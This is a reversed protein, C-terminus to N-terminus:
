RTPSLLNWPGGGLPARAEAEREFESISIQRVERGFRTVVTTHSAVASRGLFSQLPEAHFRSDTVYLITQAREWIRPQSWFDYDDLETSDCGVHAAGALTADAQACVAWHPGVVVPTQGTRQRVAEVAGELLERGPGWSYLDNSTDATPEYSGLLQGTKVPLSTRLWCWGLVAVALGLGLCSTQLSSRLVPARAAHVSLTLYAPALWESESRSFVALLVQPLLPVLLCLWLLRDVSSHHQRQALDKGVLVGAYLFPPAVALLPRLLTTAAEAPQPNTDFHPLPAGAGYWRLLPAILIAFLGLAAWPGLTRWRPLTRKGLWTLLLSSALLWGSLKSLVGLAAAVGAASVALLAGFRAPTHRLAWGAAGLALLWFFAFPLSPTFAFSGISLEPILALPFYARLAGRPSAGCARATLVGVWPMLVSTLATFRHLAQPSPGPGLQTALWGILGPHDLYAPQPHLGYAVYLAEADALGVVEALDLRAILLGITIALAATLAIM